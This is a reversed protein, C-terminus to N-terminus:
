NNGYKEKDIDLLYIHFTTDSKEILINETINGKLM